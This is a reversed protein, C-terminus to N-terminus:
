YPRTEDRFYHLLDNKSLEPPFDGVKSEAGQQVTGNLYQGYSHSTPSNGGGMIESHFPKIDGLQPHLTM